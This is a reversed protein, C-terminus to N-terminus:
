QRSEFMDRMGEEFGVPAFGLEREAKDIIFGTKLPRKGPQSFTSADVRTMLSADLNFWSAAKVAMDYPTLKEKGSIHYIGTANQELVLQIGKALDKVYTPTRVQDNVVKIPKHQQLNDRVWTIINSRTGSLANGYVLCTRIISWPIKAEQILSEALQKTVGYWNVPALEDAEAYDGKEGDFVFDTSIYCIAKCFQEAAALAQLTAQVNVQMAEEQHAECYDVQTLAAAHVLNDFSGAKEFFLSFTGPQSIDAAHYSFSSHEAFPVRVPGKGIGAVEHGQALLLHGLHQGLLGNIGTILIKM